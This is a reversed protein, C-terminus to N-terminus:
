RRALDGRGDRVVVVGIEPFREILGDGLAKTEEFTLLPGLLAISPRRPSRAFIAQPGEALHASEIVTLRSGLLHQLRAEYEASRSVLIYRSM